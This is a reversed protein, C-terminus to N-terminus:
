TELGFFARQEEVTLPATRQECTRARDSPVAVSKGRFLSKPCMIRRPQDGEANLITMEDLCDFCKPFDPQVSTVIVMPLQFLELSLTEYERAGNKPAPGGNRSSRRTPVHHRERFAKSGKKPKAEKM